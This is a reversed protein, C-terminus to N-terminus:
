LDETQSDMATRGTSSKLVEETPLHVGAIDDVYIRGEEDKQEPFWGEFYEEPRDPEEDPAAGVNLNGLDKIEGDEKM